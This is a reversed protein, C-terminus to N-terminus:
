KINKAKKDRSFDSTCPPRYQSHMIPNTTGERQGGRQCSTPLSQHYTMRLRPAMAAQPQPLTLKAHCLVQALVGCHLGWLGASSEAVGSPQARFSMFRLM